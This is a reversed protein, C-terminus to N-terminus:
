TKSTSVRASIYLGIALLIETIIKPMSNFCGVKQGYHYTKINIM